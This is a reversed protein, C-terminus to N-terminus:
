LATTEGERAIGCGAARVRRAAEGDPDLASNTHNLHIFRVRAREASTLREFRALSEVILPHPIEAINRGPLESGDFFTADLYAADVRRVLDEVPREWREWKDIDPLFAVSRSPGEIVYGVTESYEDRHPVRFPTVTLRPTLTVASDAALPVIAINGLTVLQEWPGNGELFARMRPMAYVPMGRTGMVERGLHMLGTYHGIHAHTLFVGALTCGPAEAQMRRWQGPFDPTADFLWWRKAAEDVVGLSVVRERRGSTCCAKTCGAHPVGGDQAIGLVVVRVPAASDGATGAGPLMAALCATFVSMRYRMGRLM